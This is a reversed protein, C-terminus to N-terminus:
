ATSEMSNIYINEIVTFLSTITIFYGNGGCIGQLQTAPSYIFVCSHLLPISSWMSQELDDAKVLGM